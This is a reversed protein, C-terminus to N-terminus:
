YRPVSPDIELSWREIGGALSKAREIGQQRLWVAADLSRIGHHCYCIVEEDDPLLQVQGPLAGLPILKAGEIRCIQFEAPERVDVLLLKEGQDLRRKVEAPLIQLDDM